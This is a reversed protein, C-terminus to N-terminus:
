ELKWSEEFDWNARIDLEKSFYYVAEPQIGKLYNGTDWRRNQNRDDIAKLLYKGPILNRINLTSSESLYFERLVVEKTGLLQIIFQKQGPNSIELFLNGYDEPPPVKFSLRMTDNTLGNLGYFVSDPVTLNYQMDPEFTYELQYKLGLSDMRAFSPAINLTDSNVVMMVSDPLRLEVVPYGFNLQLTQEIELKRNPINATWALFEREATDRRSLRRAQAAQRPNLSLHLTDRILTDKTVTLHISDAIGARFYWLLTDGNNNFLPMINLSDPLSDLPKILVDYAPQRFAFRLLGAKVIEARLLKQTSDVEQFMALRLAHVFSLSDTQLQLLSDATKQSAALETDIEEDSFELSDTVLLSDIVPEPTFEPMILSDSFAILEGAMDYIFNSNMDSLAFIKFQENKLNNFRFNGNKDTRTVYYPKKVYPLSDPPITDAQSLLYLMAFVNEAPKLDFANFANGKFSMSDLIDGTSFVFNYGKLPNSETLDVIADGFFVSYTTQPLLDEEFRIILSRGRLRYEPKSQTPPSILIQEQAKELKVFENFTLILTRGNFLVSKNPPMSSVVEPPDTDKIGGSPMVPNACRIALVLFMLPLLIRLSAFSVKTM